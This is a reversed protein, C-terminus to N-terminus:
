GWLQVPHDVVGVDAVRFVGRRHDGPVVAAQVEETVHRCPGVADLQEIHKVQRVARNEHERPQHTVQPPLAAAEPHVLPLHQVADQHGHGCDHDAPAQALSSVLALPKVMWPM